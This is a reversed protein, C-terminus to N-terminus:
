TKIISKLSPGLERVIKFDDIKISDYPNVVHLLKASGIFASWVSFTSPPGIIYECQSLLLHDITASTSIFDRNINDIKKHLFNKENSCLITAIKEHNIKLHESICIKVKELILLYENETYFYKGGCFKDYDGRRAHVGVVVKCDSKTHMLLTSLSPPINNLDPRFLDSIVKVHTSNVTNSFRSDWTNIVRVRNKLFVKNVVRFLYKAIASMSLKYTLKLM